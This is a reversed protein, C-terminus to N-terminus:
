PAGGRCVMFLRDFWVWGSVALGYIAKGDLKVMM